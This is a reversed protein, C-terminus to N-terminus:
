ENNFIRLIVTVDSFRSADAVGERAYADVENRWELKMGERM